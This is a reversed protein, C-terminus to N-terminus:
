NSYKDWFIASTFFDQCGGSVSSHQLAALYHKQIMLRQINWDNVPPLVM